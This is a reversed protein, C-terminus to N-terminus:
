IEMITLLGHMKFIHGDSRDKCFFCISQFYKQFM